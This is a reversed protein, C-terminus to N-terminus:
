TCVTLFHGYTSPDPLAKLMAQAVDARPISLSRPLGRDVATRYAGTLPRNTLRPPRMITWDTESAHVMPETRQLDAFNERFFRMAMPKLVHRLVFGDGPDIFAGNASVLVYRRIGVKAMAALTSRAADEHLTTSGGPRPGLASVVADCGDIVGALADPDFIDVLISGPRAHPNRVAAVVEHGAAQAQSDFARGIGGTAGLLAIRM